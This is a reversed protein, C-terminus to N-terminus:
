IKIIEIKNPDNTGLGHKPNAATAIYTPERGLEKLSKIGMEVRKQEIIKWGTYDLAVPDMGAILGNYRWTWQPMFSPGGEYQATAADCISLRVKRRISPMMYVDAIYPDGVDLHYKHPNHIAGFLNKLSMTVGAIGHDKLLPLNIVADCVRTLTKCVLSAASGYMEFDSEFGFVDNGYCRVGRGNYNIKYGADELDTNFRDWIVIDSAKIGAEQLRECVANVLEIHTSGRGSLCNVKLGVVEGPNVVEKWAEVPNDRDFLSQMTNDLMKILRDSELPRQATQLLSDRSIVVKSKGKLRSSDKSCAAITSPTLLFGGSLALGKKFFERRKM